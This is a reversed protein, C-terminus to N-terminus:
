RTNIMLYKMWILFNFGLFTSLIMEQSIKSFKQSNSFKEIKSFNKQDRIINTQCKNVAMWDISDMRNRM